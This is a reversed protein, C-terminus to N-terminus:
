LNLHEQQTLKTLSHSNLLKILQVNLYLSIGSRTLSKFWVSFYNYPLIEQIEYPLSLAQLRYNFNQLFSNLNQLSFYKVQFVASFRSFFLIFLQHSIHPSFYPLM